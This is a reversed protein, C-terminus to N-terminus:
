DMFFNQFLQRKVGPSQMRVIRSDEKEETRDGRYESVPHGRRPGNDQDSSWAKREETREEKYGSVPPGM